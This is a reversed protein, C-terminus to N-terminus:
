GKSKNLFPIHMHLCLGKQLSEKNIKPKCCFESPHASIEWIGEAGGERADAGGNDVDSELITCKKDLILRCQSMM